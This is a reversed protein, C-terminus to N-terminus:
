ESVSVWKILEARIKREYNRAKIYAVYDAINDLGLAQLDQKYRAAQRPMGAKNAAALCLILAVSSNPEYLKLSIEYANKADSFLLAYGLEVYQYKYSRTQDLQLATTSVEKAHEWNGLEYGSVMSTLLLVRPNYPQRHELSYLLHKLEEKNSADRVTELRLRALLVEINFPNITEAQALLKEAEILPTNVYEPQNGRSQDIYFTALLGYINPNTSGNKIATEMCEVVDHYGRGRTSVMFYKYAMTQCLYDQKYASHAWDRTVADHPLTGSSEALKAALTYFQWSVHEALAASQKPIDIKQSFVIHERKAYQVIVSIYPQEAAGFIETKLTYFPPAAMHCNTADVVFNVLSYQMLGTRLYNDIALAADEGMHSTGSFVTPRLLLNPKESSCTHSPETQRTSLLFFLAYLGAILAIILFVGSAIHKPRWFKELHSRVPASPHSSTRPSTKPSTESIIIKYTAKPIKLTIGSATTNFLALNKRLKYMEVRVISDVGNDFNDDRGLVDLAISYAKIREGRGAEQEDLLYKLLERQRMSRGLCGSTIVLQLITDASMHDQDM